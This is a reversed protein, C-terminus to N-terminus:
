QLRSRGLPISGLRMEKAEAVTPLTEALYKAITANPTIGDLQAYYVVRDWVEAPLRITKVVSPPMHVRVM